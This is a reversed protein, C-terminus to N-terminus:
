RLSRTFLNLTFLSTPKQTLLTGASFTKKTFGLVEISESNFIVEDHTTSVTKM